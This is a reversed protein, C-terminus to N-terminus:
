EETKKRFTTFWKLKGHGDIAQASGGYITWGYSEILEFSTALPPYWSTVTAFNESRNIVDFVDYSKGFVLDKFAM